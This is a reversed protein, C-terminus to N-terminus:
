SEVQFEAPLRGVPPIEQVASVRSFPPGELLDQRLRALASAPGAARVEVTGDACNRVFGRLGLERALRVTYWRFGVGQVRGSIRFDARQEAEQDKM